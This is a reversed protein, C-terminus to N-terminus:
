FYNLTLFLISQKRFNSNKWNTNKFKNEVLIPFNKWVGVECLTSTLTCVGFSMPFLIFM